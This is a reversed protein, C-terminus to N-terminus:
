VTQIRLRTKLDGAHIFKRVRNGATRYIRNRDNGTYASRSNCFGRAPMRAVLERDTLPLCLDVAYKNLHICRASRYPELPVAYSEVRGHFMNVHLLRVSKGRYGPDGKFLDWRDVPVVLRVPDVAKQIDVVRGAPFPGEVHGLENLCHVVDRDPDHFSVYFIEEQNQDDLIVVRDQPKLDLVSLM